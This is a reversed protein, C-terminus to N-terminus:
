FIYKFSFYFQPNRHKILHRWKEQKTEVGKGCTQQSYSQYFLCQLALENVNWVFATRVSLGSGSTSTEAKNDGERDGGDGTLKEGVFSEIEGL